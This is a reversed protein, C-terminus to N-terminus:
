AHYTTRPPPVAFCGGGEGRRAALEVLDNESGSAEPESGQIDRARPGFRLVFLLTLVSFFAVFYMAGGAAVGIAASVWTSAATTIGHVHQQETGRGTKTSAKWILGAGLFGVGSPIAAAVRSSDWAMPGDEFALLSTITFICAGLAVLAMTRIGAPRDGRRREYGVAGGCLISFLIRRGLDCERQTLNLLQIYRVNRCGPDYHPNVFPADHKPFIADVLAEDCAPRLWPEFLVICTTSLFLCASLIYACVQQRSAAPSFYRQPLQHLKDMVSDTRRPPRPSGDYGGEISAYDTKTTTNRNSLSM